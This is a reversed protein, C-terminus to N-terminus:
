FFDLQIKKGSYKGNNFIFRKIENLEKKTTGPYGMKKYANIVAGRYNKNRLNDDIGSHFSGYIIGVNLGDHIKRSTMEMPVVYEDIIKAALSNRFGVVPGPILISFFDKLESFFKIEESDIFSNIVSGISSLVYAGGLALPGFQKFFDRRSKDEKKLMELEYEFYLYLFFLGALRENLIVQNSISCDVDYLIISPNEEPIKKFIERYQSFNKLNFLTEETDLKGLQGSELILIDLNKLGGSNVISPYSSHTHSGMFLTYNIGNHNFKKYSL